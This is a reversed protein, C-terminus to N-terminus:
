VGARRSWSRVALPVCATGILIPVTVLLYPSWIIRGFIRFTNTRFIDASSGALPILDLAKQAGLPLYQALAAPAFTVALGLVLATVSSRVSASVLMMVGAYAIMGLFLYAYEYIEAQLMNMPAVATMKINQIPMDWGDTGLYFLQAATSGIFIMLFLEAVFAIGSAAKAYALNQWGKKMTLAMSRTGSRWEGAFVSSLVIALFLAVVVNYEPLLAAVLSSWGKVWDYPFPKDVKENMKLLYEREKGSQGNMELYDGVAKDRREYFGTVEEPKVYSIMLGPYAAYPDYLEPYLTELWGEVANWDTDETTRGKAARRQYERILEQVTEDTLKGTYAKAHEQGSKINAYGDLDNGFSTRYPNSSGFIFWQYNLINGFIVVYVFCLVVCIKTDARRWLKKHELRFLEM